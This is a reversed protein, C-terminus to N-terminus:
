VLLCMQVNFLYKYMYVCMSRAFDIQSKKSIDFSSQNAFSHRLPFSVIVALWSSCWCVHVRIYAHIHIPPMQSPGKWHWYVYMLKCIHGYLKLSCVCMCVFTCTSLHIGVSEGAMAGCAYKRLATANTAPAMMTTAM